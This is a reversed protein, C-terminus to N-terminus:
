KVTPLYHTFFLTFLTLFLTFIIVLSLYWRTCAFEPNSPLTLTPTSQADSPGSVLVLSIPTYAVLDISVLYLSFVM